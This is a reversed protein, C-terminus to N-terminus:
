KRPPAAGLIRDVLGTTSFGERYPLIVVKGGYGTIIERGPLQDPKWDGGKVLVDPRLAAYVREPTDEEFVVVFDVCELAALVQARESEPVLPRQEGKLRRVSSDSNLAVILADGLGAAQELYSIHGVHLLDFCGNTLVVKKGASALDRRAQAMEALTLM